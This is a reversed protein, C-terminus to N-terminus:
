WNVFLVLTRFALTKTSFLQWLKGKQNRKDAELSYLMEKTLENRNRKALNALISM